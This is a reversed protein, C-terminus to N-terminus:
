LCLFGLFIFVKSMALPEIGIKEVIHVWPGNSTPGFFKNYRLAYTGDFIMWGGTISAITLTVLDILLTEIM